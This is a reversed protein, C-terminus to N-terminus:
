VASKMIIPARDSDRLAPRLPIRAGPRGPAFPAQEARCMPLVM